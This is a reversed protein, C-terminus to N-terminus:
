ALQAAGVTVQKQRWGLQSRKSAKGVTTSALYFAILVWVDLNGKSLAKACVMTLM